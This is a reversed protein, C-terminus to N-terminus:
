SNRRTSKRDRSPSSMLLRLSAIAQVTKGLGMDDGLLLHASQMLARIGEKQFPFFSGPWELPGVPGLLTEPPPQLAVALKRVLEDIPPRGEGSSSFDRRTGAPDDEPGPPPYSFARRFLGFLLAQ